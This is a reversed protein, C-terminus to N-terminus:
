LRDKVQTQYLSITIEAAKRAAKHEELEAAAEADENIADLYRQSALAEREQAGITQENWRKMELAKIHKVKAERLRAQHVLRGYDHASSRLFELAEEAKGQDIM